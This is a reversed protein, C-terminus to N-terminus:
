QLATDLNGTEIRDSPHQPNSHVVEMDDRDALQDLVVRVRLHEVLNTQRSQDEVEHKKESENPSGAPDSPRECPHASTAVNPEDSDAQLCRQDRVRHSTHEGGGGVEPIEVVDGAKRDTQLHENQSADLLDFAGLHGATHPM